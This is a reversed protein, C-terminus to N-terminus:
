KINRWSIKNTAPKGSGMDEHTDIMVTAGRLDITEDRSSLAEVADELRVIVADLNHKMQRENDYNLRALIPLVEAILDTAKIVRDKPKM